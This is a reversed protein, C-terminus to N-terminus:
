LVGQPKAKLKYLVCTAHRQSQVVFGNKRLAGSIFGRVTHRQWGTAHCMMELSVGDERELMKILVERKTKGQPIDVEAMTPHAAAPKEVKPAPKGGVAEIGAPTLEARNDARMQALGANVLSALVKAKAGGNVSAPFKQIVHGPTVLAAELVAKQTPTLKSM